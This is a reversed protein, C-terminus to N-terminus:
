AAPPYVNAPGVSAGTYGAPTVPVTLAIAPWDKKGVAFGEETFLALHMNTTLLASDYLGDVTIVDNEAVFYTGARYILGTVTAPFRKPPTTGGFDAAQGTAFSDQWDYVWQVAVGRSAFWANIMADTVNEVPIGSRGAYDARFTGRAWLPLVMELTTNETWRHRYRLYEVQLEVATLTWAIYGSLAATTVDGATMTVATADAVMDAIKRANIKHAHAAMIERITDRVLEPFGRETLIPSRVCVGAVGLREENFTTCPIEYCPKPTAGAIVTAETQYFSANANGYITAFNPSVPWRVGGRRATITPVDIIGANADAGPLLDYLIESPACWGGAAVLSGGQLRSEDTLREIMEAPVDSDVVFDPNRDLRNVMAIPATQPASFQTRGYASMRSVTAEVLQGATTIDSGAQVGRIDNAAVWRYGSGNNGGQPTRRQDNRLGSLPVRSVRRGGAVLAPDTAPQEAPPPTEAPPPDAPPDAPPTGGDGQDGDGPEGEAPPAVRAALAAAQDSLEAAAQSDAAHLDRAADCVDALAQMDALAAANLEGARAAEFAEMAATDLAALDLPEDPHETRYQEIQARLAAIREPSGAPDSSAAAFQRLLELLNM